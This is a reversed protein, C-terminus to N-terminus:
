SNTVEMHTELTSNFGVSNMGQDFRRSEIEANVVSRMDNPHPTVAVPKKSENEEVDSLSLDLVLNFEGSEEMIHEESEKM